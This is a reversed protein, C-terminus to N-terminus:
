KRRNIALGGTTNSKAVPPKASTNGARLIDATTPNANPTAWKPPTVDSSEKAM